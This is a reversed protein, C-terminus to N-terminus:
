AMVEEHPAAECAAWLQAYHGGAALLDAHRGQEVIRGGALVVIRDAHTITHLRHAIVVVTRGRALTSLAAQIAAESDPDAFATAEDLVLVPTDALLARAIAVRQREGGSFQVEKGLVADLGAPEARIRDAIQAAAAAALIEEDTAGPRGLAINDRISATLLHDEQFVFGIRRYLDDAAIGPLPVGGLAVTGEQPDYFRPVLRALTSKGSGSVGVLATITGPTLELRIDAVAAPGATCGGVVAPMPPGAATGVDAAVVPNDGLRDDDADYRFTVGDFTVANGDPTRPHAPEKVAPLSLLAHVRRAAQEAERLQTFGTGLALVPACIGLGLVIAALVDIPSTGSRVLVAGTIALLTLGVPPASVVEVATGTQAAQAMWGAFFERFRACSQEFQGHARGPEGFAKVVAIGGAYEVTAANIEGLSRDYEDYLEMSGGMARVYCILTAILPILAAVALRWDVILLYALTAVPIVVAGALDVLAHAVLHHLAAVDDQAAKKVQGAANRGFWGLPLVALHAMIRSRLSGALAADALHTVVTAAFLVILRVALGGAAIWAWRWALAEDAPDALMARAIEVIALYPVLAALAAVVALAVAIGLPRRVPAILAALPKESTQSMVYEAGTM